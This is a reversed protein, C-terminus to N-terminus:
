IRLGPLDRFEELVEPDALAEINRVPDGHVIDRVALEVLKGSKTKPLDRVAIIRAPVHRSTTNGRIVDRIREELLVDLVVKPALRVFLVVRVDNAWRQGIALCELVEPLKEVQRYIEATGIRVGGPNLTADSRGHIIMGGHSTLECFDGHCWVNPYRAFYAAHFREGTPDNWFGLPTSPFSKTCVLEGKGQPQSQGAPDFVDVAMGLGRCQIEGRWVPLTPSGIVFASCIDTGGSMSSLQVDSKIAEYVYDFSEPALTSGTSLLVRVRSLDHTDKPRLGAKAIADIFKASTGFHTMGAEEAFDFLIRGGRALPSGDYMLLTSGSGLASMLINWMTWGLTTFYFYRDGTRVDCHLQQEKLHQLLTGGAGHVIAKPIGTTGSSYLVYLPHDFPLRCFDIQRVGVFRTLLDTFDCGGPLSDAKAGHDVYRTLIVHEISPLRAVIERLKPMCDIAKGNYLYGDVALLVRPRTQGFRDLVGQVGFDPSISTFTAGLSVAALMGVLAEPMNPMFAAVCDGSTLGWERLGAAVAAVNCYLQEQSLTRRVREEGWFIVAPSDGPGRTLLNEAFNLQADPFWRAGPMREGDILARAGCYGRVQCFEWIAAWFAERETISWRWLAEYDPLQLGQEVAVHRTFRAMLTDRVQAPDPCWLPRDAPL